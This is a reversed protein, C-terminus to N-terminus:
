ARYTPLIGLNSEFNKDNNSLPIIFFGVMVFLSNNKFDADLNKGLTDLAFYTPEDKVIFATKGLTSEDSSRGVIISFILSLIFVL